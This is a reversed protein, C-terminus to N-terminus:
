NVQAFANGTQGSRVVRAVSRGLLVTGIIAAAVIPTSGSQAAVIGWFAWVLVVAFAVDRFRSSIAVGIATAVLIFLSSWLEPSLGFGNFGMSVLWQSINVITAVNIWAFFISIPVRVNWRFGRDPRVVNSVTLYAWLLSGLVVGLVINSLGITTYATAACALYALSMPIGLADLVQDNRRSPRAQYIAFAVVGVFIPGWVAFTFPAPAFASPFQSYM